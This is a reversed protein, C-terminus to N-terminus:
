AVARPCCSPDPNRRLYTRQFPAICEWQTRQRPRGCHRHLCSSPRRPRRSCRGPAASAERLRYRDLQLRLQHSIEQLNPISWVISCASPFSGRVNTEVSLSDSADLPPPTVWGRKRKPQRYQPIASHLNFYGADKEGSSFASSHALIFPIENYPFLREEFSSEM